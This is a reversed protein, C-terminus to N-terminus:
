ACASRPSQQDCMGCQQFDWTAAWITKCELVLAIVWTNLLQNQRFKFSITWLVLWKYWSHMLDLWYTSLYPEPCVFCYSPFFSTLVVGFSYGETKMSPNNHLIRQIPFIHKHSHLCSTSAIIGDMQELAAALIDSAEQGSVEASFSSSMNAVQLLAIM